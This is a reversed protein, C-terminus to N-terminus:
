EAAWRPLDITQVDDALGPWQDRAICDALTRMARGVQEAGLDVAADDLKYLAVLYPPTKEVVLFYFPGPRRGIQRLGDVYHAHQRHYGYRACDARFSWRQASKTTKVDLVLDLGAMNPFLVDLRAKCRLGTDPDDWLLTPQVIGAGTLALRVLPGAYPHRHVAAVMGEVALGEDAALWLARKHEGRWADRADRPGKRNCPGFDPEVAYERAFAAPELLLSEFANGIRYADKDEDDLAGTMRARYKAPAVLLDDGGHKSFVGLVRRHYEAPPIGTHLGPPLTLVSPTPLRHLEEALRASIAALSM